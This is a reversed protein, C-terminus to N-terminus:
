NGQAYIADVNRPKLRRLSLARECNIGMAIRQESAPVSKCTSEIAAIIEVLGDVHVKATGEVVM